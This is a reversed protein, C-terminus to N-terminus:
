ANGKTCLFIAPALSWCIQVLIILCSFLPSYILQLLLHDFVPIYQCSYHDCLNFIWAQLYKQLESSTLWFFILKGLYDCLPISETWKVNEQQSYFVNSSVSLGPSLSISISFDSLRSLIQIDLFRLLLARIFSQLVCIRDEFSDKM